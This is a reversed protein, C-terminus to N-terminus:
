PLPPYGTFLRQLYARLDAGELGPSDGCDLIAWESLVGIFNAVEHSLGTAPDLGGVEHQTACANIGRGIIPSDASATAGYCLSARVRGLKAKALYKTVYRIERVGHTVLNVKTFGWPWPETVDKWRLEADGHILAHYHVMGDAHLEPVFMYRIKHGRKRVKKLYRGVYAGAMKLRAESRESLALSAIHQSILARVLPGFTYTGFWTRNHAAYERGARAAWQRARLRLCAKCARCPVKMDIVGQAISRARQFSISLPDSCAGHIDWQLSLPHGSAGAELAKSQLRLFLDNPVIRM